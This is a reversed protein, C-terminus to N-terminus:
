VKGDHSVLMGDKWVDSEDSSRQREAFCHPCVTTTYEEISYSRPALTSMRNRRSYKSSAQPPALRFAAACDAARHCDFYECRRAFHSFRADDDFGRLVHTSRRPAAVFAPAFFGSSDSVCRLDGLPHQLRRWNEAVSPPPQGAQTFLFYVLAIGLLAALWARGDIQKKRTAAVLLLILCLALLPNIADAVHDAIKFLPSAPPIM